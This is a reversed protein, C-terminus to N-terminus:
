KEIETEESKDKTEKNIDTIIDTVDTKAEIFSDIWKKAGGDLKQCIYAGWMGVVFFTIRMMGHLTPYKNTVEGYLMLWIVIPLGSCLIGVWELSLYMKMNLPANRLKADNRITGYKMSVHLVLGALGCLLYFHTEQM